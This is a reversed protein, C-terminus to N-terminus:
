NTGLIISELAERERERESSERQFNKLPLFVSFVHCKRAVGWGTIQMLDPFPHQQHPPSPSPLSLASNHSRCTFSGRPGQLRPPSWSCCWLKAEAMTPFCTLGSCPCQLPLVAPLVLCTRFSFFVGWFNGQSGAARSTHAPTAWRM